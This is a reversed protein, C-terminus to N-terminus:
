GPRSPDNVIVALSPEASRTDALLADIAAVVEDTVGDGIREGLLSTVAAMTAPAEQLLHCSAVVALDGPEVLATAAGHGTDPVLARSGSTGLHVVPPACRCWVNLTGDTLLEVATGGGVESRYLVGGIYRFADAVRPAGWLHVTWPAPLRRVVHRARGDPPATAVASM